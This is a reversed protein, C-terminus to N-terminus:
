KKLTFGAPVEYRKSDAPASRISKVETYFNFFPRKGDQGAREGETGGSKQGGGGGFLKGLVSGLDGPGPTPGGGSRPQSERAETGGSGEATWEVQTVIAFGQVKAMEAALRAVAKQQEAEGLGTAGALAAIGFNRTEEPSMAFKLKALYAKQYALEEARVARIEGTEPTTWLHTTMVSKGTEGTKQNRTELLWTALYEECPFGNIPKRAGTKEVKFENRTIVVDSPEGKEQRPPPGASPSRREREGKPTLPAETYTKKEPDLTWVLDRDLRTIRVNDGGGAMKQIAGLFAGTFKLTSESRQATAQTATATTGEFAGMGGFGDSRFYHEALADAWAPAAGALLALVCLVATLWWRM